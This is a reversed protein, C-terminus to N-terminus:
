ITPTPPVSLGVEVPELALTKAQTWELSGASDGLRGQIKAVLLTVMCGM